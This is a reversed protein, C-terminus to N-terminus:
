GSSRALQDYSAPTDLNNYALYEHLTDVVAHGKRRFDLLRTAFHQDALALSRGIQWAAALSLDFVGIRADYITSASGSYFPQRKQILGPLEPSLPGRYLAFSAEGTQTEYNLGVYGRALYDQVVQAPTTTDAPADVPLKLLLRNLLASGPAALQEALASFTQGKQEQCFFSWSALSFLRVKKGTPIAPPQTGLYAEFGELSVLHVINKGNIGQPVNEIQPFRNGIVLSFQGNKGALPFAKQDLNVERTHALYPLERAGPLIKQFANGDIIVTQCKSKLEASALTNLPIAPKLVHPDKDNLVDGVTSSISRTSAQPDGGVIESELLLLLALWPVNREVGHLAIEWPLVRSSLVVHPLKTAYSGNATDPPFVSSVEGAPLAFRPGQVRLQQVQDPIDADALAGIEHSARIQYMGASLAPIAHDYFQMDGLPLSM